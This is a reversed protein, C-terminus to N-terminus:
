INKQIGSSSWSVLSTKSIHALVSQTHSQQSKQKSKPSSKTHKGICRIDTLNKSLSKEQYLWNVIVRTCRYTISVTPPVERGAPTCPYNNILQISFIFNKSVEFQTMKKNKLLLQLLFLSVKLIHGPFIFIEKFINFNEKYFSGLPFFLERLLLIGWICNIFMEVSLLYLFLAVSWSAFLHFISHNQPFSRKFTHNVPTLIAGPPRHFLSPLWIIQKAWKYECDCSYNNYSFVCSLKVLISWHEDGRKKLM